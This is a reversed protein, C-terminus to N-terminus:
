IHLGIFKDAVFKRKLFEFFLKDREDGQQMWQLLSRVQAGRAIYYEEKHVVMEFQTADEQLTSKNLDEELLIHV